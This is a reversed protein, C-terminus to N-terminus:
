TKEHKIRELFQLYKQIYSVVRSFVINTQLVKCLGVDTMTYVEYVVAQQKYIKGVEKLGLCDVYLTKFRSLTRYYFQNAEAVIFGLERMTNDKDMNQKVLDWDSALSVNVGGKLYFFSDM